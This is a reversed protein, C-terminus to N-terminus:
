CKYMLGLSICAQHTKKEIYNSFLVKFFIHIFKKIHLSNKFNNAALNVPYKREKIKCTKHKISENLYM